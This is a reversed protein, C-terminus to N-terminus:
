QLLYPRRVSTAPSVPSQHPPPQCQRAIEGLRVEIDDGSNQRKPANEPLSVCWPSAPCVTRLEGREFDYLIKANTPDIAGSDDYKAAVDVFLVRDNCVWRHRVEGVRMGPADLRISLSDGYIQIRFATRWDVSRQLRFGFAKMAGYPPYHREDSAVTSWLFIPLNSWVLFAFFFVVVSSCGWMLSGKVRPFSRGGAVQKLPEVASRTRAVFEFGCDCCEASPPNELGCRSYIM